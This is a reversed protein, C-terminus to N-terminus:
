RKCADLYEERTLFRFHDYAHDSWGWIEYRIYREGMMWAMDPMAHSVIILKQRWLTREVLLPGPQEPADLYKIAHSSDWTAPDPLHCLVDAEGTPDYSPHIDGYSM